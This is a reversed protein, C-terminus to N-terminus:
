STAAGRLCRLLNEPSEAKTFGAAAASAYRTFWLMGGGGKEVPAAEKRVIAFRCTLTTLEPRLLLTHFPSRVLRGYAAPPYVCVRRRPFWPGKAIGHASFGPSRHAQRLNPTLRM